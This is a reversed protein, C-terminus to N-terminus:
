ITLRWVHKLITLVLAKEYGTLARRYLVEAQKLKGQDSYLSGLSYRFSGGIPATDDTYYYAKRQLLHNAHPLLRQQHKAYSEEQQKTEIFSFGLLTKIRAKFALKNKVPTEFWDPINSCNRGCEIMKYWIDRNNFCALFLLLTAATTDRKQVERYSIMWTKLINGQQYHRM